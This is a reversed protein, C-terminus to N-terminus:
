ESAGERVQEQLVQFSRSLQAKAPFPARNAAERRLSEELGGFQELHDGLEAWERQFEAEVDAAPSYREVHERVASQLERTLRARAIRLYNEVTAPPVGLAEGIDSASLGECVRGYLARFYDGRGEGYLEALLTQMARSLLDDVWARYFVDEDRLVLESSDSVAIAGLPAGKEVVDALLRRRGAEVRQRNAIVNRTIGCLFSRLKGSPSSQWRALLNSKVLLLLTESAVDEAHDVPLHGVYRAFRVIPGWYDKLFQDWDGCNSDETLRSILTPRTEPFSM